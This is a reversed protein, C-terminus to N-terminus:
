TLMKTAENLISSSTHCIVDISIREAEQFLCVELENTVKNIRFHRDIIGSYSPHTHSCLSRYIAEYEDKLGAKNFKKEISIRKGGALQIDLFKKKAEALEKKTDLKIAVEGAYKNGAEAIELQKIQNRLFDYQINYIHQRDDLLVRLDVFTELMSRLLINADIAHGESVLIAIAHAQEILTLFYSVRVQDYLSDKNFKILRAAEISLKIAQDIDKVDTKVETPLKENPV